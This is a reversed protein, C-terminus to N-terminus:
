KGLFYHVMWFLNHIGVLHFSCISSAMSQTLLGLWIRISKEIWLCGLRWWKGPKFAYLSFTNDSLGGSYCRNYEDEEYFMNYEDETVPVALAGKQAERMRSMIECEPHMKPSYRIMLSEKVTCINRM